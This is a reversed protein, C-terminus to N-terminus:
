KTDFSKLRLDVKVGAVLGEQKVLGVDAAFYCTMTMAQDNVKLNNGQVVLLKVTKEAKGAFYPIMDTKVEQESAVFEGTITEGGVKVNVKWKWDKPKPPLQLFCLPPTVPKDDIAIRCFEQVNNPLSLKAVEENGAPVNNISTELRATPVMANGVKKEGSKTLKVTILTGGAAEYTWTAGARLPFYDVEQMPQAGAPAAVVLLLLATSTLVPKM